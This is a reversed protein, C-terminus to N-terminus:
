KRRGRKQKPEDDVGSLARADQVQKEARQAALISEENKGQGGLEVARDFEHMGKIMTRRVLRGKVGKLPDKKSM